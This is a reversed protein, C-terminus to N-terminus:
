LKNQKNFIYDMGKISYVMLYLAGVVFTLWLWLDGDPKMEGHNVYTHAVFSAILLFSIIKCLEKM